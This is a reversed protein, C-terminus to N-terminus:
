EAAHPLVFSLTALHETKDFVNLNTSKEDYIAAIVNLGQNRLPLTVLGDHVLPTM